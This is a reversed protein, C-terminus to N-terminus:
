VSVFKMKSADSVEIVGLRVRVVAKVMFQSEHEVVTKSWVVNLTAEIFFMM